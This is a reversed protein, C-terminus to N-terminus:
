GVTEVDRLFPANAISGFAVAGVHAHAREGGNVAFFHHHANEIGGDVDQLQPEAGRERWRRRWRGVLSGDALLGFGDRPTDPGLHVAWPAPTDAFSGM